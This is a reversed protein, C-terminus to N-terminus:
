ASFLAEDIKLIKKIVASKPLASKAPKFNLSSVKPKVKANVSSVRSSSKLGGTRPIKEKKGYDVKSQVELSALTLPESRDEVVQSGCWATQHFGAARPLSLMRFPPPGWSCLM